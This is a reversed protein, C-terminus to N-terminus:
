RLVALSLLSLGGALASTGLLTWFVDLPLSAAIGKGTLVVTAPRVPDYSVRVESGPVLLAPRRLPTRGRPRAFVPLSEARGVAADESAEARAQAMAQARALAPRGVTPLTAYALLPAPDLADVAAPDPVVLATVPIGHRRLRHRLRLEAACWFLLAGGFFALVGGAVATPMEM